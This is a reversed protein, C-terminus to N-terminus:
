PSKRRTLRSAAAVLAVAAGGLGRGAAALAMARDQRRIRDPIQAYPVTTFSVLEYQSVCLARSAAAGTRAQRRDQGPLGPSNVRDRMEVFNDLAM